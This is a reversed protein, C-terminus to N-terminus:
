REPEPLGPCPYETALWSAFGAKGPAPENPSLFIILPTHRKLTVPAVVWRGNKKEVRCTDGSWGQARFRVIVPRSVERTGDPHITVTGISDERIDFIRFTLRMRVLSPWYRLNARTFWSWRPAKSQMVVARIELVDSRSLRGVPKVGDHVLLTAVAGTFMLMVGVLVIVKTPTSM